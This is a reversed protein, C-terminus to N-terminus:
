RKMCEKEILQQLFCPRKKQIKWTKGTVPDPPIDAGPIWSVWEVM